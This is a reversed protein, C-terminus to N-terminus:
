EEDKSDDMNAVAAALCLFLYAKQRNFAVQESVGESLLEQYLSGSRVYSNTFVLPPLVQDLLDTPLSISGNVTTTDNPSPPTVVTGHVFLSEQTTGPVLSIQLSEIEDNSAESDRRTRSASHYVPIEDNNTKVM